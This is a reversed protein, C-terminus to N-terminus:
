RNERAECVKDGPSATLRAAFDELAGLHKYDVIVLRGDVIATMVAGQKFPGGSFGWDFFAELVPPQPANGARYFRIEVVPRVSTLVGASYKLAGMLAVLKAVTKGDAVTCKAGDEVARLPLAVPSYDPAGGAFVDARLDPTKRLRALADQFQARSM